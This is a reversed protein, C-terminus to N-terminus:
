SRCSSFFREFVITKMVWSRILCQADTRLDCNQLVPFQHLDPRRVINEITGGIIIDGTEHLTAGAGLGGM